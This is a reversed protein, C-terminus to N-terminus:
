KNAEEKSRIDFIHVDKAGLDRFTYYYSDGLSRPYSSATPIVIVTKAYNIEVTRRLVTMEGSRKEAGGILVLKGHQNIM